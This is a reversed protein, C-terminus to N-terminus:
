RCRVVLRCPASAAPLSHCPRHCPCHCRCHYHCLLLSLWRCHSLPPSLTATSTLSRSQCHHHPSPLPPRIFLIRPPLFALLLLLFSPPQPQPFDGVQAAPGGMESSSATRDLWTVGNAGKHAGSVSLVGVHRFSEVKLEAALQVHMDFSKEHLAVTPGSGWSRALFGGSKGSAASAVATKEVIVSPLSFLTKLHYAISAGHIGGGVIVIRPQPAAATAIGARATSLAAMEILLLLLLLGPASLFRMFYCPSTTQQRGSLCLWWDRAAQRFACSSPGCEQKTAACSSACM